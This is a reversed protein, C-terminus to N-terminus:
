TIFVFLGLFLFVLGGILRHTALQRQREKSLGKWRARNVFYGLLAGAAGFIYAFAWITPSENLLRPAVVIGLNSGFLLLTQILGLTDWLFKVWGLGQSFKKKIWAGM